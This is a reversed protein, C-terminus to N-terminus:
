FTAGTNQGGAASSVDTVSGTSGIAIGNVYVAAYDDAGIHITGTPQAGLDFTQEFVAYQLDAPATLAVAPRWTWLAEPDGAGATWGGAAQQQRYVLAGAPCNTPLLPTECVETAPGLSAGHTAGADAYDAGAFSPWTPGSHIDLACTGVCAAADL